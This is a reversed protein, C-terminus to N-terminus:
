GGMALAARKRSGHDQLCSDGLPSRNLVQADDTTRGHQLLGRHVSDPLPAVLGVQQVVFRDLHLGGDIHDEAEASSFERARKGMWTFPSRKKAQTRGPNPGCEGLLGSLQRVFPKWGPQRACCWPLRSVQRVTKRSLSAVAVGYNV